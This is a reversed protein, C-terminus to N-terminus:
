GSATVGGSSTGPTMWSARARTAAARMQVIYGGSWGATREDKCFHELAMSSVVVSATKETMMVGSVRRTSLTGAGTDGDIRNTLIM